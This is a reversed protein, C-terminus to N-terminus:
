VPGYSEELRRFLFGVFGLVFLPFTQVYTDTLIEYLGLKTIAGLFSKTSRMRVLQIPMGETCQLISFETFDINKDKVLVARAFLNWPIRAYAMTFFYLPFEYSATPYKSSNCAVQKEITAWWEPAGKSYRLLLWQYITQQGIPWQEITVRQITFLDIHTFSKTLLQGSNYTVAALM